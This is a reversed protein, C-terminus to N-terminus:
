SSELNRPDDFCTDGGYTLQPDATSVLLSNYSEQIATQVLLMAASLLLPHHPLVPAHQLPQLTGLGHVSDGVPDVVPLSLLLQGVHDRGVGLVWADRCGVFYWSDMVM